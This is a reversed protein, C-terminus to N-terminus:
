SLNTEQALPVILEEVVANWYFGKRNRHLLREQRGIPRLAMAINRAANLDSDESHKCIECKFQKGKRNSSRVWGCKNCRQSTYTPNIYEIQVGNTTCLSELRSFLETYTFHSLKRSTRAFKRLNKIKELRLVQTSSLDIQNLSWNIYNTRHHQTRGFAKSGKTKRTLRKTITELTHGHRDQQQTIVGNSLTVVTKYGQDAGLIIGATREKPAALEWRFNITDESVLFSKLLIGQCWKRSQRHHKIPVRIKGFTKGLAHLQLYGNFYKQTDRYDCCISNLEAKLGKVVPKTIPHKTIKNRLQTVDQHEKTLKTLIYLRKRPKELVAKVIGCVQTSCCKLARASLTTTTNLKTNIDATLFTPCDYKQNTVDLTKGNFINPHDWLYDLYVQAMRRYEDLFLRLNNRKSQHAFKTTHSSIRIM